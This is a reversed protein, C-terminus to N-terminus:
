DEDILKWYEGNYLYIFSHNRCMGWNNREAVLLIQEISIVLYQEKSPIEDPKLGAIKQYDVPKIQELLQTLIHKHNITKNIGQEICNDANKLIDDFTFEPTIKNPTLTDM